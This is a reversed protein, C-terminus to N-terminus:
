QTQIFHEHARQFLHFGPAHLTDLAHVAEQGTDPTENHLLTFLADPAQGRGKLIHGGVFLEGLHQMLRDLFATFVDLFEAEVGRDALHHDAGVGEGAGLHFRSRGNHGEELYEAWEGRM